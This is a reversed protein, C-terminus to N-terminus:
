GPALALPGSRGHSMKFTRCFFSDVVRSTHTRVLKQAGLTKEQTHSKSGFCRESRKTATPTNVANESM